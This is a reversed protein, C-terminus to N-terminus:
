NVTPLWSKIIRILVTIAIVGLLVGCWILMVDLPVFGNAYRLAEAAYPPFGAAIASRLGSESGSFLSFLATVKIWIKDIWGLVPEWLEALFVAGAAFAAWATSILKWVGGLVLKILDWLKSFYELM